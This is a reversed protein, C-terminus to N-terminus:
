PELAVLGAFRGTTAGARAARRHSYFREDELTCVGAHRVDGVGCAALDAAVGAPLDLAATGWSTTSWAAPRTAAVEDRMTAPVEYCAGCASPGVVARVRSPQAGERAMARVVAPVVGAALGRRGAHATAVVRAREDALLVPVCDAVLVGLGAGGVGVLADADGVTDPVDDGGSAADVRDAGGERDGRGAAGPEPGVVVVGTGHVQTAFHAPRGLWASARARNERVRAADDQVGLGLNLTDWPAPSVGGARTTFAARVGAGLDVELV